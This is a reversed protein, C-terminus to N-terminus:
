RTFSTAMVSHRFPAKFELPFACLKILTDIWGDVKKWKDPDSDPPCCDLFLDGSRGLTPHSRRSGDGADEGGV